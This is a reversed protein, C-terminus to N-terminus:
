LLAEIGALVGISEADLAAIEEMIEAPLAKFRGGWMRNASKDTM